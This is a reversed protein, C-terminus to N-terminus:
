KDWQKRLGDLGSRIHRQVTALTTNHAYAIEQESYGEILHLITRQKVSADLNMAAIKQLIRQKTEEEQEQYEVINEPQEECKGPMEDQYLDDETSRGTMLWELSDTANKLKGRRTNLFRRLVVKQLWKAPNNIRMDPYNVLYIQTHLFAEQTLDAADEEKKTLVRAYQYTSDWYDTALQNVYQCAATVFQDM